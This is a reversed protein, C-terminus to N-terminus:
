ISPKKFLSAANEESFVYDIKYKEGSANDKTYSGSVDEFSFSLAAKKEKNGTEAQKENQENQEKNKWFMLDQTSCAGLSLASAFLLSLLAKQKKM